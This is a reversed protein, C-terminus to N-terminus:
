GTRHCSQRDWLKDSVARAWPDLLYKQKDFRLGTNFTDNPGDMCWVYCSGVELGEVFVHWSFFTRHIEPDLKIVQYAETQDTDCFLLLEVQTAHRSFISFNVGNEKVRAGSPYTTGPNTNHIRSM